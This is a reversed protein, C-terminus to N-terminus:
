GRCTTCGVTTASTPTSATPLLAIAKAPSGPLVDVVEVWIVSWTVPVEAKIAPAVEAVAPKSTPLVPGLGSLVGLTLLSEVPSSVTTLALWAGL